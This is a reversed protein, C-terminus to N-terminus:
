GSEKIPQVDTSNNKDHEEYKTEDRAKIKQNPEERRARRLEGFTYLSHQSFSSMLPWIEGPLGQRDVVDPSNLFTRGTGDQPKEFPLGCGKKRASRVPVSTLVSFPRSRRQRSKEVSGYFM